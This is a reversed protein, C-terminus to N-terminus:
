RGSPSIYPRVAREAVLTTSPVCPNPASAGLCTDRLWIVGSSASEFAVFRGDGSVSASQNVGALPSGDRSESIRAVSPVCSVPADTGLCTDRMIIQSGYGNGPEGAEVVLYRGNASM